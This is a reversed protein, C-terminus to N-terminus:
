AACRAPATAAPKGARSLLAWALLWFGAYGALLTASPRARYGAFDALVRGLGTSDDLLRASDWVPDWGPSLWDLAIMQDIGTAVLSAAVILLLVESLRMLRRTGLSRAGRGLLWACALAALLGGLGALWRAAATGGTEWGIGCLFVVTEAGERAVALAAVWAVGSAGSVRSAKAELTHRMSAGHRRMWAVMQLILAAAGLTVTLRVADLAQGQLESQALLTAVGLLGALGVGGAAGAWLGRRLPAPAPQRAIWALLVGIILLAEVSERWVVIFTHFM